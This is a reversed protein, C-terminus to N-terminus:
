ISINWSDVGSPLLIQFLQLFHLMYGVVVSNHIVRINFVSHLNVSTIGVSVIVVAHDLPITFVIFDFGRM